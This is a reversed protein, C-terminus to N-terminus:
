GALMHPVLAEVSTEVTLGERDRLWDRNRRHLDVEPDFRNLLVVLGLEDRADVLPDLAAVSLRVGNITGLGADAVVVILDAVLAAALSVADAGDSALPSRVGGATEVVGVTVGDPWTLDHVLDALTFPELGLVEAAM